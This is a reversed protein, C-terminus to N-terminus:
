IKLKTIEHVNKKRMLENLGTMCLTSFFWLIFINHRKFVVFDLFHTKSNKLMM